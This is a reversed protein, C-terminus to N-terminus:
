RTSRFNRAARGRFDAGSGPLSKLGDCLEAIKPATFAAGVGGHAFENRIRRIANCEEREHENILGLAFNANIRAALSQLPATAGNLLKDAVKGRVMFSALTDALTTDIM